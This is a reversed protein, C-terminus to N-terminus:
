SQIYLQTCSPKNIIYKQRMQAIEIIATYILINCNKISLKLSKFYKRKKKIENVNYM